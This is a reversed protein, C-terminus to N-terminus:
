GYWRRFYSLEFSARPSIQQQIGTSFEWNYQRFGYGSTVRQDLGSSTNNVGGFNPNVMAGCFDGGSNRLDQQLPSLLNCDPIFNKNQDTWSRTTTDVLNNNASPNGIRPVGGGFSFGPDVASVMYKNMSLKVATRGNGFLDYVLASKPTWDKWDVGDA